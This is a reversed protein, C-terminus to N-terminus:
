KKGLSPLNYSLGTYAISYQDKSDGVSTGDFNDKNTFFMNYGVNLKVRKGLNFKAGIGVPIVEAKFYTDTGSSGAKGKYNIETVPIGAVFQTRGVYVKPAYWDMGYGGKVFFTTSKVTALNIVASLMASYALKTEYYTRNTKNIYAVDDVTEPPPFRSVKKNNNGGITGRMGSLELGFARVLQKQVNLGWAFYSDWYIFDSKDNVPSIPATWGGYWGVTLTKDKEKFGKLFSSQANAVTVCLVCLLSLLVVKKTKTFYNM